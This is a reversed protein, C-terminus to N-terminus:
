SNTAMLERTTLLLAWKHGVVGMGFVDWMGFGADQLGSGTNKEDVVVLTGNYPAALLGNLGRHKLYGEIYARAMQCSKAQLSAMDNIDKGVVVYAEIVWDTLVEVSSGLTKVKPRCGQVVHLSHPYQLGTDIQAQTPYHTYATFGTFSALEITELAALAQCLVDGDMDAM